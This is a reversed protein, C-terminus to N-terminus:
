QLDSEKQEKRQQDNAEATWDQEESIPAFFHRKGELLGKLFNSANKYYTKEGAIFHIANKQISIQMGQGLEQKTTEM